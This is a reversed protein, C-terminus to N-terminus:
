TQSPFIGQLAICFSLVLYPQMNQHPQSGGTQGIELLSMGVLNGPPTYTNAQQGLFELNSPTGTGAPNNAGNLTHV